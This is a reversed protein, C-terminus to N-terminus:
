IEVDEQKEVRNQSLSQKKQGGGRRLKKVGKSRESIVIESNGSMLERKQKVGTLDRYVDSQHRGKGGGRRREHNKGKLLKLRKRILRSL